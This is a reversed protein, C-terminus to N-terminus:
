NNYQEFLSDYSKGTENKKKNISDLDIISNNTNNASFQKTKKKGVLAFLKLEIEEYTFDAKKEKVSNLEEETLESSFSEFLADIKSDNDNQIKEEYKSNVEEFKSKLVEYESQVASLEATKNNLEEEKTTFSSSTENYKESIKNFEYEYREISTMTFNITEEGDLNQPTFKIRKKSEMNLSVIDGDLSYDIGVPLYKISADEVYVRNEDHDLYFYQSYSDGWRDVHKHESLRLCLEGILQQSSLSFNNQVGNSEPEKNEEKGNFIETLKSELEEISYNDLNNKLEVVDEESLTPFKTFLELKEDVNEGGQINNLEIKKFENIQNNIFNFMSQSSFQTEITANKMAPTVFDGLACAGFFSFKTFHFLKDEQFEGEYDDHLEMSQPKTSNRNFIDVPDDWKQWVLGEVTLFEREVGDDCLRMEFQANNTEPIVGIAQCLYKIKFEGDEVTLVQRHDSFDKEDDQNKEIYALIPTNSLTPISELVVDKDFYSGNLNENLHMLWIKVKLFRTDEVEYSSLKQFIVPVDKNVKM